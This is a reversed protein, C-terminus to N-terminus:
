FSYSLILVCMWDVVYEQYKRIRKYTGLRDTTQKQNKPHTTTQCKTNQKKKIFIPWHPSTVFSPKTCHAPLEPWDAAWLYELYMGIKAFSSWLSLHLHCGDLVGEAHESPCWAFGPHHLFWSPQRREGLFTTLGHISWSSIPWAPSCDALEGGHPLERRPWFHRINNLFTPTDLFPIHVGLRSICFIIVFWQDLPSYGM